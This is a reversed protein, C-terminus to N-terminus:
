RGYQVTVGSEGGTQAVETSAGRGLQIITQSNDGGTQSLIASHDKGRQVILGQNGTGSQGIAAQNNRGSQLVSAGSRLAQAEFALRLAESARGRPIWTASLTEAEAAIPALLLLSVAFPRFM